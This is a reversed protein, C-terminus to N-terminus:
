PNLAKKFKLPQQQPKPKKSPQSTPSRGRKPQPELTHTHATRPPSFAYPIRTWTGLVKFGLVEVRIGLSRVSFGLDKVRLWFGGWFGLGKVRILFM